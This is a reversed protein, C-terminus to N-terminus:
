CGSTGPLANCFTVWESSNWSGVATAAAIVALAIIGLLFSYEVLATGEADHMLNKLTSLAKSM